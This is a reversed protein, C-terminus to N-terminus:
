LELLSIHAHTPYVYILLPDTIFDPRPKSDALTPKNTARCPSMGDQLAVTDDYHYEHVCTRRYSTHTPPINTPCFMFVARTANLPLGSGLYRGTLRSVYLYIYTLAVPSCSPSFLSSFLLSILSPSTPLLAPM